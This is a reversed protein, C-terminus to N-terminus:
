TLYRGPSVLNIQLRNQPLLLLPCALTLYELEPHLVSFLSLLAVRLHTPIFSPMVGALGPVVSTNFIPGSSKHIWTHM